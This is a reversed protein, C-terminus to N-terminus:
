AAGDDRRRSPPLPIADLAASLARAVAGSSKRWSSRGRFRYGIVRDSRGLTRAVEGFSAGDDLMDAAQKLEAPTMPPAFPRAVGMRARARQVTRYSVGVISGIQPSTYGARTLQAIRQDRRRRKMEHPTPASAKRDTTSM